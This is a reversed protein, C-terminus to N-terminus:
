FQSSSAKLDEEHLRERTSRGGEVSAVGQPNQVQFGWEIYFEENRVM